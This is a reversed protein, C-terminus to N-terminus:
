LAASRFLGRGDTQARGNAALRRLLQFVTETEEARGLAGALAEPTFDREPQAALLALIANKLAIIEGASKKGMEVAPQDYANVRILSAYYGVTREWLAILGGITPADVVPATITVSSRGQTHLAQRTGLLFAQLYDGSTSNEGVVPSPGERDRLIEIFVTFFNDPGALLQQVYSHQDSSGKNGLVALGQHVVRGDRDKEKGLSEMVLQQMYKALLELRDQYPLIVMQMGGRGGTLAQWILALLLAPNEAPAPRRTLEDVAAAGRLLGGADIGQLALPLLGVASLVSTRGGVWDWMPFFELWGEAEAALDLKSGRQTVRVAHRAFSLGEAEYLARLEELGNRTEITGGSKSIVIVLTEALAPRVAAFVRDMGDPDTNDIFYLRLKDAPTGLARSVFCSGLSSGGIGVVIVRRFLGGREGSVTGAHVAAVFKSIRSVATWIEAALEPTPALEPARLWYHGVMRGESPNAIAGNELDRMEQWVRRTEPREPNLLEEPWAALSPDLTLGTGEDQFLLRRYKEWSM